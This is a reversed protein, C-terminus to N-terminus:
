SCQGHQFVTSQHNSPLPIKQLLRGMEEFYKRFPAPVKQWVGGGLSNRTPDGLWQAEPLHDLSLIPIPATTLWVACGSLLAPPQPSRTAWEETKREREEGGVDSCLDISGKLAGWLAQKCYPLHQKSGACLDVWPKRWWSRDQLWVFGTGASCLM